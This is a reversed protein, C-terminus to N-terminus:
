RGPWKGNGLARELFRRVPAPLSQLSGARVDDKPAAANAAKEVIAYEEQLWREFNRCRLVLWLACGGIATVALSYAVCPPM